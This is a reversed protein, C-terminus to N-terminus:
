KLSLKPIANAMAITSNLVRLEKACDYLATHEADVAGAVTIEIPTVDELHQVVKYRNESNSSDIGNVHCITEIIPTLCWSRYNFMKKNLIGNGLLFALDFGVINLGCFMPSKVGCSDLFERLLQSVAETFGNRHGEDVYFGNCKEFLDVQGPYDKAWESPKKDSPLVAHFVKSPIFFQGASMKRAHVIGIELIHDNLVDLGTTEIDLLFIDNMIKPEEGHEKLM